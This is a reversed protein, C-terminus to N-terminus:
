ASTFLPFDSPLLHSFTFPPPEIFEGCALETCTFQPNFLLMAPTLFQKYIIHSSLVISSQHHITPNTYVLASHVNPHFWLAKTM